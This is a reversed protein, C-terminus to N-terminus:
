AESKDGAPKNERGGKQGFEGPWNGIWYHRPDVLEPAKEGTVASVISNISLENAKGAWFPVDEAFKCPQQYINTVGGDAYTGDPHKLIDNVAVRNMPDATWLTM